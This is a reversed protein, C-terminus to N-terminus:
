LFKKKELALSLEEVCYAKLDVKEGEAVHYAAGYREQVQRVYPEICVSYNSLAKLFSDRHENQEM